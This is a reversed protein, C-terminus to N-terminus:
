CIICLSVARIQGFLELNSLFDKMKVTRPHHYWMSGDMFQLGNYECAELIKDLEKVNLASPKELLLHKGKQAALVAWKLHLSTPLPMYIADVSLDDLLENYDGCLKVEKSLNNRVAFQRAKDISRSAIAHLTSNPVMKIARYVKRAIEACGMIGFRIPNDNDAM